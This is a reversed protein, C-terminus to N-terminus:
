NTQTSSDADGDSAPSLQFINSIVADLEVKVASRSRRGNVFSRLVERAQALRLATDLGLQRGEEITIPDDRVALATFAERLHDPKVEYEQYTHIKQVHPVELKDLERVAFTKLENFGWKHALKLIATLDEISADYISYTSSPYMLWRLVAYLRSFKSITFCGYWARSIM